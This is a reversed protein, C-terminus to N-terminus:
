REFVWYKNLVFNLPITFFLNLLPAVKVGIGLVNIWFYLLFTALLIGTISYSAYAKILAKVSWKAEGEEKFTVINNLVYSIAVTIVFGIGNAIQYHIGMYVCVWYIILSLGTIIGGVFGFDILQKILQGKKRDM